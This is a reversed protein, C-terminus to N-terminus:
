AGRRLIRISRKVAYVAAQWNTLDGRRLRRWVTIFLGGRRMWHRKRAQIPTEKRNLWPFVRQEAAARPTVGFTMIYAIRPADSVNREACHLTRQHHITCGGSPLSCAVAPTPDFSATCQLAQSTCDNNASRHELVPGKHSGPIFQLCGTQAMVEQLAVWITLEKYEFRPDRFAEDQHWPTAAGVRPKKLIALDFFCRADEGLLQKAVQLANKFCQTKRLSPAYNVPNLIQPSSMEAVQDAGAILDAYAGENEGVRGEFLGELVHRIESVEAPTALANLRLYGQDHFFRVQHAALCLGHHVAEAAERAPVPSM